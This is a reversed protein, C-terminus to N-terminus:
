KLNNLYTEFDPTTKESLTFNFGDPYKTNEHVGRRKGAEFADKAIQEVYEKKSVPRLWHTYVSQHFHWSNGNFHVNGIFGNSLLVHYDGEKEPKESIPTKIFLEETM